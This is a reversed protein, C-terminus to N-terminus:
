ADIRSRCTWARAITRLTFQSDYAAKAAKQADVLTKYYGVDERDGTQDDMYWAKFTGSGKVWAGWNQSKM